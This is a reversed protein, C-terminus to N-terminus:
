GAIQGLALSIILTVVGATVLHFAYRIKGGGSINGLFIGLYILLGILIVYSIIFHLYTLSTGFFFPILPLSSGLVPAVGDVLSAVITAYYEAKELLTRNKKLHKKKIQKQTRTSIAPIIMEEEIMAMDKKMDSVKKRREAEESLFAGWLGSIGIALATAFGTIIVNNPTIIVSGSLFIMFIGSVIGACTLAGDFCNNFFKRRAIIGLDSIKSYERWNKIKEQIKKL